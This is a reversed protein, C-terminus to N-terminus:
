FLKVHIGKDSLNQLIPNTPHKADQIEALVPADPHMTALKQQHQRQYEMYTMETYNVYRTLQDFDNGSLSYADNGYYLIDNYEDYALIKDQELTVLFNSYKSKYEHTSPNAFVFVVDEPRTM